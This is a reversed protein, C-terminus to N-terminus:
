FGVLGCTMCNHRYGSSPWAVHGTTADLDLDRGLWKTHPQISIWIAALPATVGFCIGASVGFSVGSASVRLPCLLQCLLQCGFRVGSASVSASVSASLVPLLHREYGVAALGAIGTIAAERLSGDTVVLLVNALKNTVALARPEERLAQRLEANATPWAAGFRRLNESDVQAGAL